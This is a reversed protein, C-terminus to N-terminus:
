IVNCLDAVMCKDHTVSVSCRSLQSSVFRSCIEGRGSRELSFNSFTIISNINSFKIENRQPVPRQTVSASGVYTDGEYSGERRLHSLKQTVCGIVSARIDDNIMRQLVSARIDDNSM